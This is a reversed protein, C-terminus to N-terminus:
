KHKRRALAARRSANTAAHHRASDAKSMKNDTRREIGVIRILTLLRNLHWKQCPDFPIGAEIMYYYILDATMFKKNRRTTGDDHIVAATMPDDIYKQIEERIGQPIASYVKQDVNQTLTMCRIYDDFEEVSHDQNIFPKKWESEWKSLSLLSHELTLAVPKTYEFTSTKPDFLERGPVIIKLM